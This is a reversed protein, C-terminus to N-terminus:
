LDEPPKHFPVTFRFTSGENVKSEVWLKGKHAEVLMKSIYLGLGLGTRDKSKLQAFRQFIQAQKEEPIGPGKDVVSVELGEAVMRAKITVSGGVHTFKVANGLINTIIQTVRDRDCLIKDMGPAVDATLTLSKAAAQHIFNELCDAIIEDISWLKLQLEFKGEAVREMDLLDSILRLSTDANRKMLQLYIRIEATIGQFGPTDLLMAACSSVAGMPNRLDHSVIALFEDRTTLSGRTISHEAIEDSLIQSARNTASDTRTRESFRNQDTQEREQELIHTMLATRSEREHVMAADVRSRELEVAKDVHLREETQRDDSRKQEGTTDPASTKRENDRNLDAVKRSSSSAQDADNREKLVIKDTRREAKDRADSLSGDTQGRKVVLSDDTTKRESKLILQNPTDKM